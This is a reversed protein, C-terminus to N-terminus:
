IVLLCEKKEIYRERERERQADFNTNVKYILKLVDADAIRRRIVQMLIDHNVEQFYHKIDAKLCYGVVHNNNTKGNVRRGNRTVKRIFSHYRKLAFLTGKGKQNACSDYIFTREFIPGIVNVIAHHVVRDRFDSKAIVRTKPDRVVFTTLSRPVYTKTALEQHLVFLNREVDKEFEIIDPHLTKGKRANRWALTLNAMSCLYHYLNVHTKMIFRAM